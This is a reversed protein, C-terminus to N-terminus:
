NLYLSYPLHNKEEIWPQHNLPIINEKIEEGNYKQIMCLIKFITARISMDKTTKNQNM